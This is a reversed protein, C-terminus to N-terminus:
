GILEVVKRNKSLTKGSVESIHPREYTPISPAHTQIQAVLQFM